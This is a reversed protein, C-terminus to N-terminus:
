VYPAMAKLIALATEQMNQAKTIASGIVLISNKCDQVARDPTYIQKQGQGSLGGWEVGPTVYLFDSGFRQELAGAKNAPCVVGDLGWRKALETRRMVLDDYKIGLGQEALDKDNLSTLVSVGIVKPREIGIHSARELAGEIAKRCMSEGGAIHLNFMATWETTAERSAAYVTAPTDHFKLDLFVVPLEDDGMAGIGEIIPVGANGAATHLEKGVKFMGVYGSLVACLDIAQKPSPVDLALCVRKRARKEAESLGINM